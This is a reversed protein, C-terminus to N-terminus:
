RLAVVHNTWQNAYRHRKDDQGCDGTASVASPRSVVRVGSLEGFAGVCGREEPFPAAIAMGWWGGFAMSRLFPRIDHRAHLHM